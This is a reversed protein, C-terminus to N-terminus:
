VWCTNVESMNTLDPEVPLHPQARKGPNEEERKSEGGEEEDGDSYKYLCNWSQSKTASVKYLTVDLHEQEKMQLRPYFWHVGRGLRKLFQITYHLVSFCLSKECQGQTGCPKLLVKCSVGRPAGVSLQESQALSPRDSGRSSQSGSHASIAQNKVASYRRIVPLFSVVLVWQTLNRPM